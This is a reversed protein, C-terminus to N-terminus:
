DEQEQPDVDTIKTPLLYEEIQEALHLPWPLVTTDRVYPAADRLDHALAAWHEPLDGEQMGAVLLEILQPNWVQAKPNPATHKGNYELPVIKSVGKLAGSHTSPKGNTSAYVRDHLFHWLGRAVQATTLATGCPAVAVYPDPYDASPISIRLRAVAVVDAPGEVLM